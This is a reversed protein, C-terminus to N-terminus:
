GADQEADGRALDLLMRVVSQVPDNRVLAASLAAQVLTTRTSDLDPSSISDTDTDYTFRV